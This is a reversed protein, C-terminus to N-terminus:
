LTVRRNSFISYLTSSVLFIFFCSPGFAGFDFCMRLPMLPSTPHPGSPHLSLTRLNVFILNRLKRSGEMSEFLNARAVNEGDHACAACTPQPCQAAWYRLHKSHELEPRCRLRESRVLVLAFLAFSRQQIQKGAAEGARTAPLRRAAHEDVAHLSVITQKRQTADGM